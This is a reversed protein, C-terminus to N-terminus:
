VVLFIVAIAILRAVSQSMLMMNGGRATRRRQPTPGSRNMLLMSKRQATSGACRCPEYMRCVYKWRLFFTLFFLYGPGCGLNTYLSSTALPPASALSTLLSALASLASLPVPALTFFPLTLRANAFTNCGRRLARDLSDPLVHSM